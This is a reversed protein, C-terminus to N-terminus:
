ELGLAAKVQEFTMKRGCKKCKGFTEKEDPKGSADVVFSVEVDDSNCNPCRLNAM